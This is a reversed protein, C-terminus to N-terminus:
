SGRTNSLESGCWHRWDYIYEDYECVFDYEGGTPLKLVPRRQYEGSPYNVVGATWGPVLHRHFNLESSRRLQHDDHVFVCWWCGDCGYWLRHQRVCRDGTSRCM